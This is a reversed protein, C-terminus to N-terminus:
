KMLLVTGFHSGASRDLVAARRRASHGEARGVPGPLPRALELPHRGAVGAALM